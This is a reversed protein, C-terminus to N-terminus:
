KKQFPVQNTLGFVEQYLIFLPKFLTLISIHVHYNTLISALSYSYTVDTGLALYDLYKNYDGFLIDKFNM